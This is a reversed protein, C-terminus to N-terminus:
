RNPAAPQPEKRNIFIATILLGIAAAHIFNGIIGMVYFRASMSEASWDMELRKHLIYQISITHAVTTLFMVIIAILLLLSSTPCRKWFVFALIIGALYAVWVPSQVLLQALSATIIENM